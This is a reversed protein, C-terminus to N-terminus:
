IVQVTAATINFVLFLDIVNKLLSLKYYSYSLPSM